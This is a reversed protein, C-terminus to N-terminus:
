NVTDWAMVAAISFIFVAMVVFIGWTQSLLFVGLAVIAGLIALLISFGIAYIIFWKLFKM